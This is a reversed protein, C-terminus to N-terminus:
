PKAEIVDIEIKWNPRPLSHVAITTRAPKQPQAANNFFTTYAEGWGTRDLSGDAEPAIYARLFIVDKFGLGAEELRTKLVNLASLAQTKMNGDVAPVAGACSYLSSGSKVAIGSSIPSAAAGYSKLNPNQTAPNSADFNVTAGPAAPFATM